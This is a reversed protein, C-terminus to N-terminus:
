ARKPSTWGLNCVPLRLWPMSLGAVGYAEAADSILKKKIESFLEDKRVLEGELQDLRVEQQTAREELRAMKAQTEEAKEQLAIVENLLPLIKAHASLAEQSKEFLLRKSEKDIQRLDALEIHLATERQTLKKIQLADQSAMERLKLMEAKLELVQTSACSSVIHFAWLGRAAHGRLPDEGQSEMEGNQFAQLVEQLFTLLEVDFPAGSDGEPASEGGGERLVLDRPSSTSPPNERFVM